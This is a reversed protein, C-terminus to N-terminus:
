YHGGGQVVMWSGLQNTSIENFVIYGNKKEETNGEHYLMSLPICSTLLFGGRLQEDGSICMLSVPLVM